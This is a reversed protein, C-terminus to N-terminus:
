GMWNVKGDGVGLQAFASAQAKEGLARKPGPDLGCTIEEWAM